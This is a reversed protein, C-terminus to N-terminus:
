KIEGVKKLAKVFAELNAVRTAVTEFDGRQAAQIADELSDMISSKVGKVSRVGGGPVEVDPSRSQGRVYDRLEENFFSPNKDYAAQMRADSFPRMITRVFEASTESDDRKETGFDPKEAYIADILEGFRSKGVSEEAFPFETTLRQRIADKAMKENPMQENFTSKIEEKIIEKLQQKTIKM